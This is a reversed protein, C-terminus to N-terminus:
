FNIQLIPYVGFIHTRNASNDPAINRFRHFSADICRDVAVRSALTAYVASSRPKKVERLAKEVAAKPDPPKPQGAPWDSKAELWSRLPPTRGAWGLCEDVAPSDSWVWVELEPDLVVVRARGAWGNRELLKQVDRELKDPAEHEKGCGHRDFMVLCYKYDRVVSRLLNQSDKLCGPDRKVHTYVDFTIPRIALAQFRSLLGRVSAEM